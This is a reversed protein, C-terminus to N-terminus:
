PEELCAFSFYGFADNGDTSQAFYSFAEIRIVKWERGCYTFKDEPKLRNM